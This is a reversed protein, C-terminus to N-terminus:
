VIRILVSEISMGGYEDEVLIQFFDLGSIRKTSKYILTSPGLLYVKGYKPKSKIKILSKTNCKTIVRLDLLIYKCARVYFQKIEKIVVKFNCPHVIFECRENNVEKKKM